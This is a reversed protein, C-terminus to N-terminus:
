RPPAGLDALFARARPSRPQAFFDEAPATEVIEGAAMFLVRDAIQRAFGTEHTVCVLTMGQGALDTIVDLVERVM